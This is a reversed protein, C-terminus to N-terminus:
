CSGDSQHNLHWENGNKRYTKGTDIPIEMEYEECTKFAICGPRDFNYGFTYLFKIEVCIDGVCIDFNALKKCQDSDLNSKNWIQNSKNLNCSLETKAIQKWEFAPKLTTQLTTTSSITTSVDKIINDMDVTLIIVLIFTSLSLVGLLGFYGYKFYSKEM